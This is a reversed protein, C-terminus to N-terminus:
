AAVALVHAECDGQCAGPDDRFPGVPTASLAHARWLARFKLAGNSYAEVVRYAYDTSEFRVPGSKQKWAIM